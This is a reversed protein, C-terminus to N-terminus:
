HSSAIISAIIGTAAAALVYDGDVQRWEYGRPPARLHHRRYDVRAGRNWDSRDIRGGQRWNHHANRDYGQHSYASNRDHGHPQAAASGAVGTLLALAAAATLFRKM